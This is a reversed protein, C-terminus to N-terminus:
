SKIGVVCWYPPKNSHQIDIFGNKKFIEIIESLAFRKELQTGFRDLADTRMVYFTKDRYYSLPWNESLYDLKELYYAISSLPWYIIGAIVQTIIFRLSYPLRSITFRGYESIKWLLRYWWPRNDFAYYLYILFPAGIKLKESVSHIALNTDTVHHIVGLSYAFDLSNNEFQTNEIRTNHYTINSFQSLNQKAVELAECSADLLHLHKVQPAMLQAWRGSGCGVDLGISNESLKNFPFISFYDNFIKLRQNDDLKKQSFRKWEDGFGSITKKEIKTPVIEQM